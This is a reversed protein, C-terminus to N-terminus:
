NVSIAKVEVLLDRDGAVPEPLEIDQLSKVDGIPLSQYYAIAKM